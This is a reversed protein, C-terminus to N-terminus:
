IKDKYEKEFDTLEKKANIIDEEHVDIDFPRLINEYKDIAMKNSEYWEIKDQYNSECDLLNSIDEIGEKLSQIKGKDDVLLFDEYNSELKVRHLELNKRKDASFKDKLENLHSVLFDHEHSAEEVSALKRM